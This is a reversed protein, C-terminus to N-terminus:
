PSRKGCWKVNPRFFPQYSAVRFLQMSTAQGIRGVSGGLGGIPGSDLLRTAAIPREDLKMQNLRKV